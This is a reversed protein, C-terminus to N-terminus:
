AIGFFDYLRPGLESFRYQMSLIASALSLPLFVAALVTLITVSFSQRSHPVTTNLDFLDKYRTDLRRTHKGLADCRLNTTQIQNRV